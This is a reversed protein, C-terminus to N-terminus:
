SMESCFDANEKSMLQASFEERCFFHPCRMLFSCCFFINEGYCQIQHSHLQQVDVIVSAVVANDCLSSPDVNVM